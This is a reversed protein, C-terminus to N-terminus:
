TLEDPNTMRRVRTNFRKVGGKFVVEEEHIQQQVALVEESSPLLWIFFFPVSASVVLLVMLLWFRSTDDTTVKVFTNYFDALLRGYVLLSLGQISTILAFM